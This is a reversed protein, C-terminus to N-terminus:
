DAGAGGPTNSHKRTLSGAWGVTRRPAECAGAPGEIIVAEGRAPKPEDTERLPQQEAVTPIQKVFWVLDRKYLGWRAVVEGFEEIDHKRIRFVARDRKDYVVEGTEKDVKVAAHMLEHDLLAQRQKDTVLAHTWFEKRLIIVFDYPALERDLDTAKKCKGLVVRGDVDPQWATNFALAIRADAAQLEHHYEAVLQELMRYMPWGVDSDPLILEYAVDKEKAAKRPAKAM